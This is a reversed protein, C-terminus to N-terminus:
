VDNAKLPTADIFDDLLWTITEKVKNPKIRKFVAYGSKIVIGGLGRKGCRRAIRFNQGGLDAPLLALDFFQLQSLLLISDQDSAIPIQPM